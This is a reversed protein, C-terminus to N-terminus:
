GYYAERSLRRFSAASTWSSHDSNPYTTGACLGLPTLVKDDVDTINMVFALDFKFYDRLVRRIIDTTVYNRAHGLHADDYVTPGCAYWTVRKGAQDQPTFAVKSRTLSNYICLDPLIADAPRRPAKWPPQQRAATAMTFSSPYRPRVDQCYRLTKISLSRRTLSQLM